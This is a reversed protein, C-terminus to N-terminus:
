CSEQIELQLLFAAHNNHIIQKPTILFEHSIYDIKHGCLNIRIFIHTM